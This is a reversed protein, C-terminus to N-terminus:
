RASARKGWRLPERKDQLIASAIEENPDVVSRLARRKGWRLPERKDQMIAAAIEENPDVVSRLARRKGWRLPSAERLSRILHSAGSSALSGEEVESSGLSRKGWRLPFPYCILLLLPLLFFFLSLPAGPESRRNTDHM